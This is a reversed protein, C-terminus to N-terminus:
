HPLNSSKKGPYFDLFSDFHTYFVYSLTFVIQSLILPQVAGANNILVDLRPYRQKYTDALQRFLKFFSLDCIIFDVDENQTISIIENKVSEAKQQNRAVIVVYFRKQALGIATAKGIDETTGTIFFIGGKVGKTDSIM